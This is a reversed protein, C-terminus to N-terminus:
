AALFARRGDPRRLVEVEVGFCARLLEPCLVEEAPGAAVLRGARLLAVRDVASAQNLDHLVALVALGDKAANRAFALAAGQQALDLAATPEDLFLARTTAVADGAPRWLQAAVRALQVRQREGGSLTPYVRRWLPGLGFATRAAGIAARDHRAEPTGAHPLRGLAVVDEVLLGFELGQHQGLVARRRALAARGFRSLAQGDLTATGSDPRLGGSLVRLLTTKGAGNPGLVATIRGPPLALSVADLLPRGDGARM